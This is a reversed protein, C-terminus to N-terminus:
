RQGSATGPQETLVTHLLRQKRIIAPQEGSYSPDPVDGKLLPNAATGMALQNKEDQRCGSLLILVSAFILFGAMRYMVPM